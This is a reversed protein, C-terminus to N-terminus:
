KLEEYVAFQIGGHLSMAVQPALGKYLGRLGEQRIVSRFSSLMSRYDGRETDLQMRTKVLWIPSMIM